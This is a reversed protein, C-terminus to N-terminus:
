QSIRAALIILFAGIAGAAALLLWGNFPRWRSRIAPAKLAAGMLQRKLHRDM